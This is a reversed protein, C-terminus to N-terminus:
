STRRRTGSATRPRRSSDGGLAITEVARRLAERNSADVRTPPIVTETKTDFAVLSVTDGDTLRDVAANASAKANEFRKGRMSGSKDLVLGLHVSASSTPSAADSGKLELLVYTDAGGQRPTARHGLRAEVRVTKDDVFSARDRDEEREEGRSGATDTSEVAPSAARAPSRGFGGDPTIAYVTAGTAIMLITALGGVQSMKMRDTYCRSRYAAVPGLNRLM